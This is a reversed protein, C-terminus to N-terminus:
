LIEKVSGIAIPIKKGTGTKDSGKRASGGKGSSGVQFDSSLTMGKAGSAKSEVRLTKLEKKLRSNQSFQFFIIILGVFLSCIGIKKSANM